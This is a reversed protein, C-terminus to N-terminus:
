DVDNPWRICREPQLNEDRVITTIPENRVVAVMSTPKITGSLLAAEDALHVRDIFDRAWESEADFNHGFARDIFPFIINGYPLFLEFNFRDVLLPLIDQARIGEFGSTSCDHNVFETDVRNLQRNFRHSEPLEAWFPNLLELAEPWRQHGNRGIMDSILFSGCKSLGNSAASFLNELEVVHHLSQNAIIAKYIGAKPRWFNFDATVFNIHDQVEKQSALEKGRAHMETNIDLCDIQFNSCGHAILREALMVELESNGSGISAIKTLDDPNKPVIRQLFEFFFDGPNSFGFPQTMPVLYKNSWYHFIEPLEHVNECHRFNELEASIRQQYGSQRRAFMAKAYRKAKRLITMQFEARQGPM